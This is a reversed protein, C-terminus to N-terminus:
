ISKGVAAFQLLNNFPKPSIAGNPLLSDAVTYIRGGATKIKKNRLIHNRRAWIVIIMRINM